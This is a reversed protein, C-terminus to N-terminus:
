RYTELPHPPLKSAPVVDSFRIFAVTLSQLVGDTWIGSNKEDSGWSLKKM